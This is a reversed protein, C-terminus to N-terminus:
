HVLAPGGARGDEWRGPTYATICTLRVDAHFAELCPRAVGDDASGSLDWVRVYGDSSASVLLTQGATPGHPVVVQAVAKVRLVCPWGGGATLAQGAKHLV